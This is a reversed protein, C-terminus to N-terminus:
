AVGEEDRFFGAPPSTMKGGLVNSAWTKEWEYAARLHLFTEWSADAKEGHLPIDRYSWKGRVSQRGGPTLVPAPLHLVGLRDVKPMPFEGDTTVIADARALAILQMAADEHVDKGTKYDLLTWTGDHHEVLADGTGAYGHKHSWVTFEILVFRKVRFAQLWEQWGKVHHAVEEEIEVDSGVCLAEITNHAKSGLDRGASRLRDAGSAIFAVADDENDMGALLEVNHYAFRAALKASWPVLFGSKDILGSISTVSPVQAGSHPHTYISSGGGGSKKKTRLDPQEFEVVPPPMTGEPLDKKQKAM